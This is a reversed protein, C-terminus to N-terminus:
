QNASTTFHTCLVWAAALVLTVLSVITGLLVVRPRYLFTMSHIGPEARAAILGQFPAARYPPLATWGEEWNRNLVVFGPAHATVRVRVSNPSWSELEVRGATTARETEDPVFYLEGLYGPDDRPLVSIPFPIVEATVLVCYNALMAQTTHMQQGVITTIAPLPSAIRPPSLPFMGQLSARGVTMSDILAATVLFKAAVDVWRNPGDRRSALRQRIADLVMGALLCAAFVFPILFRSPVRMNSLVPLNHMLAWPAFRSFNGVAMLFCFGAVVIWPWATRLVLPCGALLLIALPGIYAGYEQWGNGQIPFYRINSQQDRGLFVKCLFAAPDRKSPRRKAQPAVTIGSAEFPLTGSNENSAVASTPGKVTGIEEPTSPAASLREKYRSWGSGGVSTHRPFEGLLKLAPFLKVASLGAGFAGMILLAALPRVSRQQIAWCLTLLGCVIGLLSAVHAGGGELVMLALVFGAYTAQSLQRCGRYLLGVVWPIYVAALSWLHGSHLHLALWTSFLSTGAAYVSALRSLGMQRCCWCMGGLGIAYHAIIKLKIAVIPGNLLDLLFFPDLSAAQPNGIMPFGGLYWPNWLPLEGFEAVSRYTSQTHFFFLDWDYQGWHDLNHLVDSCFFLVTLGVLLSTLVGLSRKTLGM